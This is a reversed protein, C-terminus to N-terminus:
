AVCIMKQFRPGCPAGGTAVPTSTAIVSFSKILDNYRKKSMQIFCFFLIEARWTNWGGRDDLRLLIWEGRIWLGGACLLNENWPKKDNKLRTQYCKWKGSGIAM